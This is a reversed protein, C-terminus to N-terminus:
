KGLKQKHRVNIWVEEETSQRKLVNKPSLFMSFLHLWVKRNPGRIRKEM